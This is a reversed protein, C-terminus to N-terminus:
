RVSRGNHLTLGWFFFGPAVNPNGFNRRATDGSQSARPM